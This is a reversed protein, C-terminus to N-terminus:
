RRRDRRAHSTMHGDHGAEQPVAAGTSIPRPLRQGEAQVRMAVAVQAARARLASRYAAMVLSEASADDDTSTTGTTTAATPSPAPVVPAAMPRSPPAATSPPATQTAGAGRARSGAADDSDVERMLTELPITLELTMLTRGGGGGGGSGAASAASAGVAVAAGSRAHATSAAPAAAGSRARARGSAPVGSAGASGEGTGGTSGSSGGGGLQAQLQRTVEGVIARWQTRPSLVGTAPAGALSGPISSSESAPQASTLPGGQEDGDGRPTPRLVLPFSIQLVPGTQQALTPAAPGTARHPGTEGRSRARARVSTSSSAAGGTDAGQTALGTGAAAASIQAHGGDLRPGELPSGAAVRQLARTLLARVHNVDLPQWRDSWAGPVMPLAALCVAAGLLIFYLKEVSSVVLAIIEPSFQGVSPMAVFGQAQLEANTASVNDLPHPIIINADAHAVSSTTTPAHHHAHWSRQENPDVIKLVPLGHRGGLSSYPACLAATFAAAAIATWILRRPTGGEILAARPANTNILGM